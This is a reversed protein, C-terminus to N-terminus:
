VRARYSALIECIVPEFDLILRVLWDINGNDNNNYGLLRDKTSEKRVRALSDITKKYKRFLLRSETSLATRNYSHLVKLGNALDRVGITSDYWEPSKQQQHFLKEALDSRLRCSRRNFWSKKKWQRDLAGQYRVDLAAILRQRFADTYPKRPPPTSM